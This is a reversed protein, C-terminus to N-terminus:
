RNCPARNVTGFALATSSLTVGSIGTGSLRVLQPSGVANDYIKMTVSSSNLAVPKFVVNIACSAGAALSTGCNDTETFDSAFAGSMKISTITLSATGSNTLTAVQAASPVRAVQQGFALSSPSAGALSSTGTGILTVTQPSNPASDTISLSAIRSGSSVPKFTINVTCSAGGLQVGCSGTQSFDASNVGAISISSITLATNGTNTLTIKQVSSKSGILQSSFSVAAPSLSATSQIGTGSLIVSQVGTGAGNDTITLSAAKSGESVPVLVVNIVCNGGAAVSSGCNNTQSFEGANAGSIAMNSINLPVTGANTL